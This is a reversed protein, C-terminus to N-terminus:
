REASGALEIEATYVLDDLPSNDGNGSNAAVNLVIAGSERPATWEFTWEAQEGDAPVGAASHQIYDVGNESTAVAVRGDLPRATGASEGTRDGRAWRFSAQFGAAAMDFSLLRITIEHVEGPRYSRGVGVIELTSGPENVGSGLHCEVCTPEGFGGTHAPPPGEVHPATGPARLVESDALRPLSSMAVIAPSEARSPIRADDGQAPATAIALLQSLVASVLLGAVWGPM